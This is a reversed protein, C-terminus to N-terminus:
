QMLRGGQLSFSQHKRQTTCNYTGTNIWKELLEWKKNKKNSLWKESSWFRKESRWFDNKPPGIPWGLFVLIVLFTIKNFFSFTLKIAVGGVGGSTFGTPVM